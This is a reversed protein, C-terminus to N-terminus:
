LQTTVSTPQAPFSPVEAKGSLQGGRVASTRVGKSKQKGPVKYFIGRLRDMYKKSRTMMIQRKFCLATLSREYHNILTYM